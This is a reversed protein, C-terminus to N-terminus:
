LRSEGLRFSKRVCATYDGALVFLGLCINEKDLWTKFFVNCVMEVRFDEISKYKALRQKLDDKVQLNGANKYYKLFAWFKELGYLQGSQVDQLTEDQFDNYIEDRFHKELGYSFFRFLCELGYRFIIWQWTVPGSCNWWEWFVYM